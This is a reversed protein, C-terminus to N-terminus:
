ARYYAGCACARCLTRGEDIIERGDSVREGCQECVVSRNPRGPRDDQPVDITVPTTSFLAEDSWDKWFEIPDVGQGVHPVDPQPALRFARGSALDVFTAAMKGYDVFKMRRKGLTVGCTVSVADTACRDMEVYVVLDRYSRPDEIGLLRCGYRAMRVGMVMGHCLHGHFAQAAQLDDDLTRV